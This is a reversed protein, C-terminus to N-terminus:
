LRKKNKDKNWEPLYMKKMYEMVKTQWNHNAIEREMFDPNSHPRRPESLAKALLNEM